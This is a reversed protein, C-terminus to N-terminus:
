RYQSSHTQSGETKSLFDERSSWLGAGGAGKKGAPTGSGQPAGHYGGGGGNRKQDDASPFLFPPPFAAACSNNRRKKSAAMADEADKPPRGARPAGNRPRAPASPQASFAGAASASQPFSATYFLSNSPTSVPATVSALPPPALSSVPSSGSSPLPLLSEPALPVKRFCPSSFGADADTVDEMVAPLVLKSKMQM